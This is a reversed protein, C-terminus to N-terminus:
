GSDSRNGGSSQSGAQHLRGVIQDGAAGEGVGQSTRAMGGICWARDGEQLKWLPQKRPRSRKGETDAHGRGVGEELRQEPTVEVTLGVREETNLIAVAGGGGLGDQTGGIWRLRGPKKREKCLM